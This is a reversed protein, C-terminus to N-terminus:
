LGIVWRGIEVFPVGAGFVERGELPGRTEDLSAFVVSFIGILLRAKKAVLMFTPRKECGMDFTGMTPMGM